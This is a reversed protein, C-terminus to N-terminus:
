FLAYLIAALGVAACYVAFGALKGRRVLGIM